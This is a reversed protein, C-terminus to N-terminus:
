VVLSDILCITGFESNPMHHSLCKWLLLSGPQAPFTCNVRDAKEFHHLMIVQPFTNDDLHSLNIKQSTANTGDPLSAIFSSPDTPLRARCMHHSRPARWFLSPWRGFREKQRRHPGLRPFCSAVINHFLNGRIQVHQDLDGNPLAARRHGGRRDWLDAWNVRWLALVSCSPCFTPLPPPATLIEAKASMYTAWTHEWCALAKGQPFSSLLSPSACSQGAGVQM